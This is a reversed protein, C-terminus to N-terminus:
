ENNPWASSRIKQDLDAQSKVIDNKESKDLNVDEFDSNIIVSVENNERLSAHDLTPESPMTVAMGETTGESAPSCTDCVIPHGPDLPNGNEDIAWISDEIKRDRKERAYNGAEVGAYPGYNLGNKFGFNAAAGVLFTNYYRAEVFAGVGPEDDWLHYFFYPGTRLSWDKSIRKQVYGGAQLWARNSIHDGVFTTEMRSWLSIWAEFTLGVVLQKSKHRVYELYLGLLIDEQSMKYLVDPNKGSLKAYILRLKGTYGHFGITNDPNKYFDLYRLGAQPGIGWSDWDYGSANVSGSDRNGFFGIMRGWYWCTDWIGGEAYSFEGRADEGWWFGQRANLEFDLCTIPKYEAIKYQKPIRPPLGLKIQVKPTIPPAKEAPPLEESPTPPPAEVAPPLEEKPPAETFRSAFNGCIELVFLEYKRNEIYVTWVDARLAGVKTLAYEFGEPLCYVGAKDSVCEMWEGNMLIYPSPNNERVYDKLAAKVDSPYYSKDIGELM